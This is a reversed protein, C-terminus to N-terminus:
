DLDIVSRGKCGCFPLTGPIGDAPPKAWKYRKGDRAVHEQRPHLKRSHHWIFDTLGFEEARAQDLRASLKVTQDSAIRLARKRSIDTAEAIEKAIERRPTRATYGRWVSGQIRNLTDADVNRILSLISQYFADMTQGDPTLLVGLDVGTATFVNAAWRKRHWSEVKVLWTRLEPTLTLILRQLDAESANLAEQVENADDRISDRTQMALARSYAPLILANADVVWQRPVKVIIHFLEEVLMQTPYIPKLEVSGRRVKGKRKAMAPLDYPM